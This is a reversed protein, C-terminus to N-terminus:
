PNAKKYAIYKMAYKDYIGQDIVECMRHCPVCVWIGAVFAREKIMQETIEVYHHYGLIKTFKGCLQCCSDSPKPRKQVTIKRQETGSNLSLCRGYRRNRLYELQKKRNKEERRQKM